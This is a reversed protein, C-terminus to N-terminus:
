VASKLISVRIEAWYKELPTSPQWELHRHHQVARARRVLYERLTEDHKPEPKSESLTPAKPNDRRWQRIAKIGSCRTDRCILCYPKGDQKVIRHMRKFPAYNPGLDVAYSQPTEDRIIVTGNAM